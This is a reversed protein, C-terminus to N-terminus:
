TSMWSWNIQRVDLRQECISGKNSVTELWCGAGALGQMKLIEFTKIQKTFLNCLEVSVLGCPRTEQWFEARKGWGIDWFRKIYQIVLGLCPWIFKLKVHKNQAENRRHEVTFRLHWWLFDLCIRAAHRGRGISLSFLSLHQMDSRDIAAMTEGRRASTYCREMCKLRSWQLASLSRMPISQRM